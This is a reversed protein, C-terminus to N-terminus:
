RTDFICVKREADEFNFKVIDNSHLVCAVNYM